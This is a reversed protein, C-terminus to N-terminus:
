STLAITMPLLTKAPLKLFLPLIIVLSYARTILSHGVLKAFIEAIIVVLVLVALLARLQVLIIILLLIAENIIKIVILSQFCTGVECTEEVVVHFVLIWPHFFIFL